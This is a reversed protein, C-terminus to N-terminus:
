SGIRRVFIAGRRKGHSERPISREFQWGNLNEQVISEPASVIDKRGVLAVVLGDSTILKEVLTLLNELGAAARSVIIPYREASWRNKSEIKRNIVTLKPLELCNATYELFRAKKNRAEILHITLKPNLCGLIIGPLGAGSGFDAVPSGQPLISDLWLSELIHDEWIRKRALPSILSITEAWKDLITLYNFIRIAQKELLPFSEQAAREVIWKPSKPIM